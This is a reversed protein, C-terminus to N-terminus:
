TRRTHESKKSDAAALVGNRSENATELVVIEVCLGGLVERLAELRIRRELRELVGGWAEIGVTLLRQCATRARARLKDSFLMPASPAICRTSPRFSFLARVESLYAVSGEFCVTLLRQCKKIEGGRFPTEM